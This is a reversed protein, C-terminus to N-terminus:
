GGNKPSKPPKQNKQFEPKEGKQPKEKPNWVAKKKPNQLGEKHGTKSPNSGEKRSRNQM